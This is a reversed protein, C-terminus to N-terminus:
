SVKAARATSEAVLSEHLRRVATRIFDTPSVDLHTDAALIKIGDEIRQWDEENWRVPFYKTDAVKGDGSM